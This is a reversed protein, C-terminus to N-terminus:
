LVTEDEEMVGREADREKVIRKEVEKEMRKLMDRVSKTLDWSDHDAIFLGKNTVLKGRVVFNTRKGTTKFKKVHITMYHIHLLKGIKKVRTRIESDVVTQIFADENQLGSVTVYVGAIEAGLLKIIERPTVLGLFKGGEEVVVTNVGKEIMTNVIYKLETGPAARAFEGMFLASSVPVDCEKIKEGGREWGPRKAKSIMTKLMSLEDVVGEVSNGKLVAVRYVHSAKLISKVVSISDDASVCEPFFMVQEATKGQFVNKPILKLLGTKTLNLLGQDGTVPVSRYSNVVFSNLVDKFEVETPLAKVKRIISLSSIKAKDLDGVNKKIIDSASVVGKLEKGDVIFAEYAKSDHMGAVVKSLKEGSSFVLPQEAVSQLNM